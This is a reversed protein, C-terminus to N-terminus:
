PQMMTRAEEELGRVAVASDSADEEADYDSVAMDTPYYIMDDTDWPLADGAYEEALLVKMLLKVLDPLSTSTNYPLSADVSLEGVQDDAWIKAAVLAGFADQTRTHRQLQRKGLAHYIRDRTWGNGRWNGLDVGSLQALTLREHPDLQERCPACPVRNECSACQRTWGLMPNSSCSEDDANLSAILSGAGQATLTSEPSDAFDAVWEDYTETLGDDDADGALQKAILERLRESSDDSLATAVQAFTLQRPQGLAPQVLSGGATDNFLEDVLWKLETVEVVSLGQPCAHTRVFGQEHERTVAVRAEAKGQAKSVRAQEVALEDSYHEAQEALIEARNRM